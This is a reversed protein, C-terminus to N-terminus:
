RDFDYRDAELKFTVNYAAGVMTGIASNAIYSEINNNSLLIKALQIKFHFTSEFLTVLTHNANKM